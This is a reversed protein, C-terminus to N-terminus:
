RKLREWYDNLNHQQSEEAENFIILEIYHNYEKKAESSESDRYMKGIRDIEKVIKTLKM